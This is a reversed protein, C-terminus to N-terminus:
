FQPAPRLGLGQVVKKLISCRPVGNCDSVTARVLNNVHRRAGHSICPMFVIKMCTASEDLSETTFIPEGPMLHLVAVLKAM